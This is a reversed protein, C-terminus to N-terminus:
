PRVLIPELAIWNSWSKAPGFPACGTRELSLKM